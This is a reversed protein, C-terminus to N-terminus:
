CPCSLRRDQALTSTCCDDDDHSSILGRSPKTWSRGNCIGQVEAAERKWPRSHGARSTTRSWWSGPAPTWLAIRRSYRRRWCGCSPRREQGGRRGRSSRGPLYLRSPTTNYMIALEIGYHVPRKIVYTGYTRSACPQSAEMRRSSTGPLKTPSFVAPGFAL